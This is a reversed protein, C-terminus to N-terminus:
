QCLMCAVWTGQGLLWAEHKSMGNHLYTCAAACAAACCSQGGPVTGVGIVTFPVWFRGGLPCAPCSCMSGVAQEDGQQEEVVVGAASRIAEIAAEVGGPPLVTGFTECVTGEPDYIVVDAILMGADFPTQGDYAAVGVALSWTCDILVGEHDTILNNVVVESDIGIFTGVAATGGGPVFESLTWVSPATSALAYTAPAECTPTTPAATADELVVQSVGSQAYAAPAALAALM